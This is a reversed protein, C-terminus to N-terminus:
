FFDLSCEKMCERGTGSALEVISTTRTGIKKRLTYLRADIFRAGSLVRM